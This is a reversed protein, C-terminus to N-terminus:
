KSGPTILPAFPINELRTSAPVERGSLFARIAQAVAPPRIVSNHGANEVVLLSSRSFGRRISETQGLPTIGDETGGIFLTPISTVLPARFSEGLDKMELVENIGPFPFNMADGLRSTAAERAIREARAPSVGSAADTTLWTLSIPARMLQLVNFTLSWPRRGQDIEDLMKPLYRTNDPDNLYFKAIIFRLAFGGVRYNTTTRTAGDEIPVIVPEADARRLVRDLTKLLDPFSAGVTADGRAREAIHALFDESESPLKRATDMGRPSILILKAVSDPHRRAYEQALQTGYSHALLALKPAGLALRVSEIDEASQAIDFARADYGAGELRSRVRTAVGALYDMFSSRSALSGERLQDAREPVLSPKSAGCGRQDLLIVDAEARLEAFLARFDPQDLHELASGGPGGHLYLIPAGPSPTTAKLRMVFLEIAKGGGGHREPATVQLSEGEVAIRTRDPGQASYTYPRFAPAEAHAAQPFVSLLVPLITFM